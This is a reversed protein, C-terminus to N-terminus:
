TTQKEEQISKLEFLAMKNDPDISLVREFTRIAAESEGGKKYAMALAFVANVFKNDLEIAKEFLDIANFFDSQQYYSAGTIYYAYKNRQDLQLYQEMNEIAKAYNNVRFYDKALNYLIKPNDPYRNLGDELVAIAESYKRSNVLKKSKRVLDIAEDRALEVVILTIDDLMQANGIFSRVDQVIVESFEELPLDQNRMVVEELRRNSYEQRNENISEPIGDTYLILRDGYNLKVSKEEYTDSAEEVAGIFLGGTDLLEYKSSDKRLLIAKQHSANSYVVNYDDDISVMFCTMYDQTKVHNLISQNVEQFIKRPSDYKAGANGFTIKAMTTVLAAPIGHGSVDAIMIGIKNDKLQHVDYFDGGIKEMAIYKVSFKLENWDEIEGPLISRQIVSAMDLQKQIQDDRGKLDSLANKLEETRQEVKDELDRRYEEIEWAMEMLSYEIAAFEKELSVVNFAAKGGSAITRAVRGLDGLITMISRSTIQMLLLGAVISLVFYLLIIGMNYEGYYRSKEMFASYSLLAIIMLMIFFFFKLRISILVRPRMRAGERLLQNYLSSRERTTIAETLLYTSMGYLIIIIIIGVATIRFITKLEGLNLAGVMSYDYVAYGIIIIGAVAVYFVAFILNYMPLDCVYGYQNELREVPLEDYGEKFQRNIRRHSKLFAPIGVPTLMGFQLYHLITPILVGLALWKILLPVLKEYSFIIFSSALFFGFIGLIWAIPITFFAVAFTYGIREAIYYFLRM